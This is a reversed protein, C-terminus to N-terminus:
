GSVEGDEGRNRIAWLQCSKLGPWSTLLVAPHGAWYMCKPGMAARGQSPCLSIKPHLMELRLPLAIGSAQHSHWTCSCSGLVSSTSCHTHVVEELLKTILLFAAPDLPCSHTGASLVRPVIPAKPVNQSKMSIAPATSSPVHSSLTRKRRCLKDSSRTKTPQAEPEPRCIFM